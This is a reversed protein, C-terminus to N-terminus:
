IAPMFLRKIKSVKADLNLVHAKLQSIDISDHPISMKVEYTCHWEFLREEYEYRKIFAVFFNIALISIL